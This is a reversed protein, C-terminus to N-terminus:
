EIEYKTKLEKFKNFPIFGEKQLRGVIIGADVQIKKAFTEIAEISFDKSSIFAEYEEKPLLSNKAFEDANREDEESTGDTKNIHGLVIHGLEHFFSFWFVDAYKGRVTMGLVIKSNDWFTAGHMFSGGIHPLFVLAIGCHSLLECLKECFVDPSETTMKRIDPISSKLKEINVSDVKIKRAELKAKQAWTLLAYYSEEGGGLKRCSIGKYFKTSVLDLSVVEFFKRLNIARDKKGRAPEIWNKKAIDNYPFKRSREIDADMDNEQQIKVIDEQYLAELNNWFYAPVGLVLELRYAIDPTLHVNGKILNCMHKESIGMRQALEKQSIGRDSIQEKITEGPPDAIITRSRIM